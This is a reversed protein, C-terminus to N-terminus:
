GFNEGRTLHSVLDIKLCLKVTKLNLKKRMSRNRDRPRFVCSQVFIGDYSYPSHPYKRYSFVFYGREPNSSTDDTGNGQVAIMENHADGLVSIKPNSLM